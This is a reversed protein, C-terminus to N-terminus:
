QEAKSVWVPPQRITDPTVGWTQCPTCHWLTLMRQGNLSQEVSEIEAPNGCHPRLWSPQSSPSSVNVPRERQSDLLALIETKCQRLAQRLEEPLKSFPRVELRDGSLPTLRFGQRHLDALLEHTTM